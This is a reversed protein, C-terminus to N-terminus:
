EKTYAFFCYQLTCSIFRPLTSQESESNWKNNGSEAKEGDKRRKYM